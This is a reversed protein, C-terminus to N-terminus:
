RRHCDIACITDPSAPRRGTRARQREVRDNGTATASGLPKGTVV